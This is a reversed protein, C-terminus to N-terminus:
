GITEVERASHVCPALATAPAQQVPCPFTVELLHATGAVAERQSASPSAGRITGKRLLPPAARFFPLNAHFCRGQM